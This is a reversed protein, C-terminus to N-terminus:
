LVATLFFFRVQALLMCGGTFSLVVRQLSQGIVLVLGWGSVMFADRVAIGLGTVVGEWVV